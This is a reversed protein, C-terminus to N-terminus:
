LYVPSGSPVKEIRVKDNRRCRRCIIRLYYQDARKEVYLGTGSRPRAAGIFNPGFTSQMWERYKGRPSRRDLLVEDAGAGLLAEGRTLTETNMGDLNYSGLCRGCRACRVEQLGNKVAV